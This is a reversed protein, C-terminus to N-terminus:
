RVNGTMQFEQYLDVWRQIQRDLNFDRVIKKRGAVGMQERLNKNQWLSQLASAMAAPDRLPVVFGEVGDTIAERMGGCDTTVVPVGCSMAELIANSIGESLSSLLFVDASQLKEKIQEQPLKGLLRVHDQLGLDHITFRVKSEDPGSGIIDFYVPIRFDIMKRIALLAYDLGKRWILSGTTLVHFTSRAPREGLRPQFFNIDVAPHIVHARQTDLGFQMAEQLIDQSVCHVASARAFTQKLGDVLDVRDPDHPGINVQSGRCSIVVPMGLDFL